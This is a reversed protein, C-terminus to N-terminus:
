GVYQSPFDYKIEIRYNFSNRMNLIISLKIKIHLYYDGELNDLFDRNERLATFSPTSPLGMHHGHNSEGM